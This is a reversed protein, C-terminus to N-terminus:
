LRFLKFRLRIFNLVQLARKLSSATSGMLTSLRTELETM